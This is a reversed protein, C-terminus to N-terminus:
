NLAPLEQLTFESGERGRLSLTCSADMEPISYSQGEELDFRVWRYGCRLMGRNVEGSIGTVSFRQRALKHSWSAQDGDFCVECAELQGGYSLNEQGEVVIMAKAVLQRAPDDASLGPQAEVLEDFLALMEGVLGAEANLSIGERLISQYSAADVSEEAVKLSENIQELAAPLDGVESLYMAKLLALYTSEALLRRKRDELKELSERAKDLNGAELDRIFSNYRRLFVSSVTNTQGQMIFVVRLQYESSVPVGDLTAPEYRWSRAATLAAEDFVTAISSDVVRLDQTKGEADIELQLQVWGETGRSSQSRPYVPPDQELAQPAQFVQDSFLPIDQAGAPAVLMVLIAALFGKWHTM